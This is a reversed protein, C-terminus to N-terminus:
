HQMFNRTGFIRSRCISIRPPGWESMKGPAGIIAFNLMSHTHADIADDGLRLGLVLPGPRYGRSHQGHYVMEVLRIDEEVTTDRDQNSLRRITQEETDASRMM